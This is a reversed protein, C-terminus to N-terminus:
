LLENIAVAGPFAVLALFGPVRFLIGFTAPALKRELIYECAVLGAQVDKPELVFAEGIEVVQGFRFDEGFFDNIVDFSAQM